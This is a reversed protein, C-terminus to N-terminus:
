GDAEANTLRNTLIAQVDQLRHTVRSAERLHTMQFRAATRRDLAVASAYPAYCAHWEDMVDNSESPFTEDNL